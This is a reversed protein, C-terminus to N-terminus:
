GQTEDIARTLSDRLRPWGGLAAINECTITFLAGTQDRVQRATADPTSAAGPAYGAHDLTTWIRTLDSM